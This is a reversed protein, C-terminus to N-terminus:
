SSELLIPICGQIKSCIFIPQLQNNYITLTADSYINIGVSDIHLMMKYDYIQQLDKPFWTREDM